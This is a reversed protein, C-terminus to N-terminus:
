GFKPLNNKVVEKKSKTGAASYYAFVLLCLFRLADDKNCAKPIDDMKACYQM